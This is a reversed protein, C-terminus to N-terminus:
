KIQQLLPTTLSVPIPSHTRTDCSFRKNYKILTGISITLSSIATIITIIILPEM